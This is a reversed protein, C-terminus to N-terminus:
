SIFKDVWWGTLMLRLVSVGLHGSVSPSLGVWWHSPMLQLGGVGWNAVRLVSGLLWHTPMLGLVLSQGGAAEACPLALCGFLSLSLGAQRIGVTTLGVVVRPDVCGAYPCRRSWATQTVLTAQVKPGM